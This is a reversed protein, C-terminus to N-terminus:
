QKKIKIFQSIEKLREKVKMEKRKKYHYTTNRKMYEKNSKQESMMKYNNKKLKQYFPIAYARMVKAQM